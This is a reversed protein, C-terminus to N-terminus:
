RHSPDGDDDREATARGGDKDNDRDRDHDRDGDHDGDRDDDDDNDQDKEKHKEREACQKHHMKKDHAKHRRGRADFRRPSAASTTPMGPQQNSRSTAFGPAVFSYKGLRAAAHAKRAVRGSAGVSM